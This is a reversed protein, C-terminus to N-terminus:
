PSPASTAAQGELKEIRAKLKAIEFNLASYRLDELSGSYVPASHYIPGCVVPGVIVCGSPATLYPGTHIVAPAYVGCPFSPSAAVVPTVISSCPRWAPRPGAQASGQLFGSAILTVAWACLSRGM